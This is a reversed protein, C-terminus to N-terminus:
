GEGDDSPKIKRVVVIKFEGMGVLDSLRGISAATVKMGTALLLTGTSSIVDMAIIDGVILEEITKEVMTAPDFAQDSDAEDAALLKVADYHGANMILQPVDFCRQLKAAFADKGIPKKVFADVDLAMATALVNADSDGTLMIIPLDRRVDPDAGSRVIKLFELGNMPEMQYDCIVIDAKFKRLLKLAEQGDAAEIIEAVSLGGLMRRVLRRVFTEDDVILVRAQWFTKAQPADAV